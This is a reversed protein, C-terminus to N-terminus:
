PLAIPNKLPLVITYDYAWNEGTPTTRRTVVKTRDEIKFADSKQLQEVYKDIIRTENANPPDALYLGSIQLADIQPKQQQGPQPPAQSSSFSSSSSSQGAPGAVSLRYPRGQSLPTLDTIWIFEPPLKSALEELITAWAVREAAALELPGVLEQIKKQQAALADFQNAVGELQQVDRNVANLMEQTVSGARLFYLWWATLTLFLCVAALVLFPKRKALDQERVVSPPRLNIEIPSSGAARLACGVLEGLTHAQDALAAAVEQNEVTVNRLPNFFEVPMHLKENFFELTYPMSVSGGCLFSRVPQSGGQNQRYFSISRAIESHLRTLTNRAVKSIKAETPDEPDAYAGGLSVFGKEVKLREALTVDQHLEKAVATSISNGGVPISRTFARDGEIFILNTTRSGIDILLSCGSLDSYNYRFANYLAMPAVDIVGAKIGGKRVSSNIEVLQDSKIAVLVVDWNNDHSGGMIQYDWVVEDIPFPVNQQAEFGIIEAVDAPSSGPLKVFRTFVSQSPLCYHATEKAPLHMAGRLEAIAAELQGPRTADAAPDAMLETQKWARLSLGGDPQTRFEALSVTQMGLNLAVIRPTKAM